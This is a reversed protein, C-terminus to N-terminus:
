QGSKIRFSTNLFSEEAFAFWESTESDFGSIVRKRWWVRGANSPEAKKRKVTPEDDSNGGDCDNGSGTDDNSSKSDSDNESASDNMGDIEGSEEDSTKDVRLDGSADVIQVSKGLLNVVRNDVVDVEFASSM